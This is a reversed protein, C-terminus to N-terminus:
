LTISFNEFGIFLRVFLSALVSLNTILAALVTGAEVAIKVIDLLTRRAVAAELKGMEMSLVLAMAVMM